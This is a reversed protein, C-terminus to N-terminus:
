EYNYFCVLIKYKCSVVIIGKDRNGEQAAHLTKRDYLNRTIERDVHEPLRTTSKRAVARNSGGQNTGTRPGGELIYFM